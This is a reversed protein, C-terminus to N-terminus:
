QGRDTRDTRDTRDARNARLDRLDIEQLQGRIRQVFDKAQDIAEPAPIASIKPNDMTGRVRLEYLGIRGATAAKRELKSAIKVVYDSLDTTQKYDQEATPPAAILHLDLGGSLAIEGKGQVGMAPARIIANLLTLHQAAYRFNAAATDIQTSRRASISKAIAELVPVQGFDADVVRAVGQASLTDLASQDATPLPGQVVAYADGHGSLDIPKEGPATCARALSQLDVGKAWLRVNCDTTAGLDLQGIAVIQGDCASAELRRILVSKPSLSLDGSVATLILDKPLPGLTARDIRVHLDYDPRVTPANLELTATGSIQYDGTPHVLDLFAALQPPYEPAPSKLTTTALLEAVSIKTGIGDLPIRARRLLLHDTGYSAQMEQIVIAGDALRVLGSFNNIPYPFRDPQLSLDGALVLLGRLSPPPPNLTRPEPNLSSSDSRPSRAFESSVESSASFSFDIGGQPHLAALAPLPHFDLAPDQVFDLRGALSSIRWHDLLPDFHLAGRNVKLQTEGCALDFDDLSAVLTRAAPQSTAGSPVSSTSIVSREPADAWHLKLHATRVPAQWHPIAGSSANVELVGDCALQEPHRGPFAGQLSVNVRGDIQYAALVDQIQSPLASYRGNHDVRVNLACQQVRLLLEDIDVMGDANLEALPANQALLHFAYEGPGKPETKLDLQLNKWVMPVSEPRTRDEYIVQGGALAVRRLRFLDSLKQPAAPKPESSSRVLTRLGMLGDRTGILHVAPDQLILQEVLVPGRGLPLKALRLTLAPINILRLEQDHEQGHDQGERGASDPSRTILAVDTLKAGYPPLYTIDGIHLDANFQQVIAAQLSRRIIWGGLQPLIMLLIAVGM